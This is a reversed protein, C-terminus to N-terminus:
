SLLRASEGFTTIFGNENSNVRSAPPGGGQSCKEVGSFPHSVVKGM